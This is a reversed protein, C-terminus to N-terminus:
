ETYRSGNPPWAAFGRYTYCHLLMLYHPRARESLGFSDPLADLNTPGKSLAM